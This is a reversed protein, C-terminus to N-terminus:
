SVISIRVGPAIRAVLWRLDREAVRICGHSTATGLAGRLGAMGHIAIQGPSGEFEQLATSHASLALAYPGGAVGARMRVSEEVFFLGHPTPTSARGVVASISRVLAGGHYVLVRRNTTHVVIRWSIEALSVARQRIWGQSGNPRGPLMVHLLQVGDPTTTRGIVPLATRVGTIPRWAAITRVPTQPRGRSSVLEQPQTLLAVEQSPTATPRDHSSTRADASATLAAFAFLVTMPGARLGVTRGRAVRHPGPAREGRM